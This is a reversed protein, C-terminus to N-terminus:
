KLFQPVRITYGLESMYFVYLLYVLLIFCIIGIWVGPSKYWPKEPRIAICNDELNKVRQELGELKSTALIMFDTRPKKHKHKEEEPEEIVPSITEPQQQM